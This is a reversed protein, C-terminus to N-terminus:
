KDGKPVKIKILKQDLANTEDKIKARVSKEDVMCYIIALAIIGCIMLNPM